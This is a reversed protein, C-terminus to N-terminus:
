LNSVLALLIWLILGGGLLLWMLRNKRNKWIYFGIVFLSIVITTIDDLNVGNVSVGLNRIIVKQIALVTFWFFFLLIFKLIKKM